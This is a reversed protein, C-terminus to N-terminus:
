GSRGAAEGQARADYRGGREPDHEREDHRAPRQRQREGREHPQEAGSPWLGLPQLVLGLWSEPHPEDIGLHEPEMDPERYTGFLLDMVPMLNAYNCSGGTDRDHHWHHLIPAGFLYKLPGLEMRVNSHIFVGWMGRFVAVGAVTSLPFGLLIAPTNVVLQTYLGDLPHERYAALWDLRSATHHVRHFRWLLPIQHSLRHGWYVCLDGLLLVCVAQLAWPLGAFTERAAEPTLARMPASLASLIAIVLASWLWSQGLLFALDTWWRARFVPQQRALFLRELPVFVVALLLLSCAASLLPALLASM